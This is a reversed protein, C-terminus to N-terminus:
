GAKCTLYAQTESKCDMGLSEANTKREKTCKQKTQACALLARTQAACKAGDKLAARCDAVTTATPPGDAPCRSVAICPDDGVTLLRDAGVDCLPADFTGTTRELDEGFSLDFWGSSSGRAGDRLVSKLKVTGVSADGAVAGGRRLVGLVLNGTPLQPEYDGPLPATLADRDDTSVLVLALADGDLTGGKLQSCVNAQDSLVITLATPDGIANAGIVLASSKVKLGSGGITGTFTNGPGGACACALLSAFLARRM